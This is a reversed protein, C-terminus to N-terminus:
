NTQRSSFSTESLSSTVSRSDLGTFSAKNWWTFPKAGYIVASPKKYDRDYAQRLKTYFVSHCPKKMDDAKVPLGMGRATRTLIRSILSPKQHRKDAVISSKASVIGLKDGTTEEDMADIKCRPGMLSKFILGCQDYIRRIQATMAPHSTEWGGLVIFRLSQEISEHQLLHKEPSKHNTHM